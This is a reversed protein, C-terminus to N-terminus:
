LVQEVKLLILKGNLSVRKIQGEGDYQQKIKRYLSSTSAVKEHDVWLRVDYTYDGFEVEKKQSSINQFLDGLKFIIDEAQSLSYRQDVKTVIKYQIGQKIDKKWYANIRSLVNDIASHLAEEILAQKSAPREKSYGTETGLLRGTTSEYAKCGVSAKYVRSSGVKRSDISINYSIYIDSGTSLALRYSFDKQTGKLSFQAAIQEQMQQQQKPLIVRYQKATLYSQIVNAGTQYNSNDQLLRLPTESENQSPIVMISPLGIEKVLNSYGAIINKKQLDEKILKKNVKYNKVIKLKHKDLKIREKFYTADWSIYNQINKIKFFETQIEKFKNKEEETQLIPNTAGFLLYWVAARRADNEASQNLERNTVSDFFGEKQEKGIGTAKVMVESPSTNDIITAQRSRPLNQAGFIINAWLVLGCILGTKLKYTM